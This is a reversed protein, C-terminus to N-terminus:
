NNVKLSGVDKYIERSCEAAKIFTRYHKFALSQTQELTQTTEEELREPERGKISFLFFNLKHETRM